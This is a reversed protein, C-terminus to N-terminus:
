VMTIHQPNAPAETPNSSAAMTAEESQVNLKSRRESLEIEVAARTELKPAKDGAAKDSSRSRINKIKASVEAVDLSRVKVFAKKIAVVGFSLFLAYTLFTMLGEIISIQSNVDGIRTKDNRFLAFEQTVELLLLCLAGFNIYRHAFCRSARGESHARPLPAAM